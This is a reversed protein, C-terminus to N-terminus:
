HKRLPRMLLMVSQITTFDASCRELQQKRFRSVSLQLVRGVLFSHGLDCPSEEGCHGRCKLSFGAVLFHFSVAGFVMSLWHYLLPMLAISFENLGESSALYRGRGPYAARASSESLIEMRSVVKLNHFIADTLVTANVDGEGKKVKLAEDLDVLIEYHKGEKTVRAITQTM